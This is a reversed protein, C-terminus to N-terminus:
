ASVRRGARQALVAGAGSVVRRRGGAAEAADGGASRPVPRLTLTCVGSLRSAGRRAKMPRGGLRGGRPTAALGLVGGLAALPNRGDVQLQRVAFSVGFPVGLLFVADAMGFRGWLPHTVLMVAFLVVMVVVQPITYPGGWLRHGEWQGVVLPHRRAKTFCRGVLQEEGGDAAM